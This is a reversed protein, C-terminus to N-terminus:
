FFKNIAQWIPKTNIKKTKGLVKKNWLSWSIMKAAPMVGQLMLAM